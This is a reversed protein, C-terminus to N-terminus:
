RARRASGTPSSSSPPTATTTSGACSARTAGRVARRLPRPPAAGRRLLRRGGADPARLHDARRRRLARDGADKSDLIRLPNKELRSGATPRFGTGTRPSIPSWRRGTPTAREGRRRPHEGGAGHGGRHRAGAPHALRLRDGRCRGAARRRGAGRHRDPPVAPLAGEAAARLPVDARRLVGQAAARAQALGNSVLARCLGATAEPRLTLSDGGRDTFTYM